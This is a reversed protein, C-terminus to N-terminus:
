GGALEQSFLTRYASPTTRMVEGFHHRYTAPAEFGVSAAVAEIPTATTELLPLSAHIRQATVWRIPSTGTCRAFHRIYTRTSMRARAALKGVTIPQDLHALAWEMSATIRDDDPNSTVPAEIFQAQGGERHPHTVLRRALSNAVEAGFDKRVIHLSVDLGAAAGAGTIVDGQDIYLPNPDVAIAPYRERLLAAHRWHTTARRGDLIGAAALAFTGTCISVMRAGRQHAKGLARVLAPSPAQEPDPVGPIIITDAATLAEVGSGTHLVAGGLVGVPGQQGTCLTLEYWRASLDPRARGFVEAVMGFEFAGVGEYALM